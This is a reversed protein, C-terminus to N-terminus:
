YSFNIIASTPLTVVFAQSFLRDSALNGRAFWARGYQRVRCRERTQKGFNGSPHLTLELAQNEQYNKGAMVSPQGM